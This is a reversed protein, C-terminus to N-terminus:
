NELNLVKSQIKRDSIFVERDSIDKGRKEIEGVGELSARQECDSIPSNQGKKNEEKSEQVKPQRFVSHFASFLM